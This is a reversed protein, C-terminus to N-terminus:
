KNKRAHSDIINVLRVFLVISFFIIKLQGFGRFLISAVRVKNIGDKYAHMKHIDEKKFTFSDEM